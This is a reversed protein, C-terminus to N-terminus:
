SFKIQIFQVSSLQKFQVSHITICVILSFSSPSVERREGGGGCFSNGRVARLACLVLGGARREAYAVAVM